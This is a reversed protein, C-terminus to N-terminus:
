RADRLMPVLIWDAGEPGLQGLAKFGHREYLAVNSPRSTELFVPAPTADIVELGGDPMLRYVGNSGLEKAPDDDGGALGYPPDTFYIDGRPGQVLDNPSNFRRGEYERALTAFRAEPAM